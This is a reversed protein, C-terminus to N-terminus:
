TWERPIWHQWSIICVLDSKLSYLLLYTCLLLCTGYRWVQWTTCARKVAVWEYRTPFARHESAWHGSIVALPIVVLPQFLLSHHDEKCTLGLVKTPNTPFTCFSVEGSPPLFPPLTSFFAHAAHRPLPSPSSGPVQQTSPSPGWSCAM